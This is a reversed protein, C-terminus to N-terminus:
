QFPFEMHCEDLSCILRGDKAGLLQRDYVDLDVRFELVDAACAEDEIINAAHLLMVEDNGIGLSADHALQPEL